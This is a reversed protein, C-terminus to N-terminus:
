LAFKSVEFTSAFILPLLHVETGRSFMMSHVSTTPYNLTEFYTYFSAAFKSVEFILAFITELFELFMLLRQIIESWAVLLQKLLTLRRGHYNYENRGEALRVFTANDGQIALTQLNFDRGYNFETNALFCVTATPM